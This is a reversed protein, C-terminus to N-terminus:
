RVAGTPARVETAYHAPNGAARAASLLGPALAVGVLLYFPIAGFPGEFIEGFLSVALTMGWFALGFPQGSKRYSRLLLRALEVQVLVFFLVGIWGSFGLAYFFDSHPTQIFVGPPMLPNLDGIPYGYGFGVIARAPNAHVAEWISGWWVLRWNATGTFGHVASPPALDDALSKSIPAVARAAIYDVAIRGGRTRPSPLDIHAVYMLGLLVAVLGVGIALQRIRKTLWAFIVLGVGFGVWEARVQIGLLVFANLALLYWVKRLRPEFALLGLLAVASGTPQGFLFVKSAVDSTGPMTWPIRDLFLVYAVGYCGNWWALARVVRQLLQRDMLGAWIGLLLFLPYYNFATDRAALFVPYGKLIGHLAEFAGYCLILVLLRELRRLRQVRPAIQLWRGQKMRPGFLLFAALTMEGIFLSFEPLGLYAFSRGLCLYGVILFVTIRVWNDSVRPVRLPYAFTRTQAAVSAM